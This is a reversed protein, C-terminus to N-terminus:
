HANSYTELYYMTPQTRIFSDVQVTIVNRILTEKTILTSKQPVSLPSHASPSPGQVQISWTIGRRDPREFYDSSTTRHNASFRKIQLSIVGEFADSAIRHVQNTNVKDSVDVLSRPSSGVLVRLDTPM